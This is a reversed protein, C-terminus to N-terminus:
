FNLQNVLMLGYGKNGNISQYDTRKWSAEIGFMSTKSYDWILNAFAGQNKIFGGTPVYSADAQDIGYGIHSHMSPSWYVVGEAWGGASPITQQTSANTTQFIGGLFPGMAKGAYIEAQFGVQSSLKFRMDAGIGSINSIYSTNQSSSTDVTRFKGYVGSIGVELPAFPVWDDGKSGRTWALRFEVDPVGSNEVIYLSQKNYGNISTNNLNVSSPLPSSLAAELAFANGGDLKFYREARLQPRFTNGANGTGALAAISDITTPFRPSFVDEQIGIAYREKDNKMDAYAILPNFGTQGSFYDGNSFVFMMLGGLKYDGFTKGDINLFVRSSRPDITATGQNVGQVDPLLFFTTGDPQGRYTTTLYNMRIAGGLTVKIGEYSTGVTPQTVGTSAADQAPTLVVEASSSQSTESLPNNPTKPAKVNLIEILQNIQKQQAEILSQQLGIKKYLEKIAEEPSAQTTQAFTPTALVCSLVTLCLSSQINQPM